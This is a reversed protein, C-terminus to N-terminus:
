FLSDHALMNVFEHDDNLAELEEETLERGDIEASEIYADAFDPYDRHNVDAMRVNTVKSRDIM